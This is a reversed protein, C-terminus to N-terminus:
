AGYYTRVYPAKDVVMSYRGAPLGKFAFTGNADTATSRISSIRAGDAPTLTVAAMRLPKAPTEDTTVVGSIASTDSSPAGAPVDRAPTQQGRSISATIVIALAVSANRIRRRTM